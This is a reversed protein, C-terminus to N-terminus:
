HIYLVSLQHELLQSKPLHQSSILTNQMHSPYADKPDFPLSNTPKHGGIVDM